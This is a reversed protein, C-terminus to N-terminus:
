YIFSNYKCTLLFCLRHAIYKVNMCPAPVVFMGPEHWAKQSHLGSKFVSYELGAQCVLPSKKYKYM